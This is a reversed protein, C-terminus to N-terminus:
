LIEVQKTVLNINLFSANKLDFVVKKPKKYDTKPENVINEISKEKFFISIDVSFNNCIKELTSVKIDGTKIMKQYGTVTIGISKALQSQTILKRKRLDEILEIDM